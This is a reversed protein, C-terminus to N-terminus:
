LGHENKTMQFVFSCCLRFLCKSRASPVTLHAPMVMAATRPKHLSQILQHSSFHAAPRCFHILNKIHIFAYIAQLSFMMFCCVVVIYNDHLPAYGAHHHRKERLTHILDAQERAEEARWHAHIARHQLNGARIWNGALQGNTDRWLLRQLYVFRM